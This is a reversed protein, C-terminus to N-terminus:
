SMCKIVYVRIKNGSQKRSSFLSFDCLKMMSEVQESVIQTHTDVEVFQEYNVMAIRM